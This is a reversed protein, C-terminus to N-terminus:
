LIQDIRLVNQVAQKVSTFASKHDSKLELIPPPDNEMSHKVVAPASNVRAIREHLIPVKSIPLRRWVQSEMGIEDSFLNPLSISIPPPPPREAPKPIHKIKIKYRLPSAVNEQAL